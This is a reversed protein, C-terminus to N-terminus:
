APRITLEDMLWMVHSVMPTWYECTNWSGADLTPEDSESGGIGNMVGGDILPTPPSFTTTSYLKPQNHGVGTVTSANFPNVGLIWDLQRQASALLRPDALLRSARCLGVGNSALHSNIGVWWWAASAQEDRPKMFYRYWHKGVRRNGGPDKDSYLGFPVTGFASRQSMQLLYDTHLKLGDRWAKADAHSPFRWLAETMALLPLNGHMIERLPEPRDPATLFFGSIAHDGGPKVQLALLRGMYDALREVLTVSPALRHMSALAVVAAGLSNAAGPSRNKVCWELCRAAADACQKAYAPDSGSVQRAVTAQATVFHFQVPLECPDVHIIRDDTSGIANDTYRNGDDGGCYDMVYGDPEQMKQFYQNGWRLEDLIQKRRTGSTENELVRGLGIMGHITAQVWKRLDCADHWGGTVDQHQGNDARKGDDLHCPSHHGTKSDGCRQKAFYNIFDDGAPRYVSPGIAFPASRINAAAIQYTGASRLADFNGLLYSGLDGQVPTLTGNFATQGTATNLVSFPGAQVGSLLCCKSAAPNFGVHNVLIDRSVVESRGCGTALAGAAGAARELFLRRTLTM